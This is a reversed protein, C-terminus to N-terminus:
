EKGRCQLKDVVESFSEKMVYYGAGDILFICPTNDNLCKSVSTVNRSEIATISSCDYINSITGGCNTSFTVLCGILLTLTM